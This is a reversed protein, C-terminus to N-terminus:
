AAKQKKLKFVPRPIYYDVGHGAGPGRDGWNWFPVTKTTMMPELDDLKICQFPGGSISVGGGETLFASGLECCIHAEGAEAFGKPGIHEIRGYQASNFPYTESNESFDIIDGARPRSMRVHALEAPTTKVGWKGITEIINM